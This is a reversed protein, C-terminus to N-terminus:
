TNSATYGQSQGEKGISGPRAGPLLYQFIENCAGFNLLEDTAPVGSAPPQVVLSTLRM